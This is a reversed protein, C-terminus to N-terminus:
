EAGQSTFQALDFYDRWATIIGDHIEFIGMLPLSRTGEATTIHDVRETMVIPGDALLHTVDVRVDGGMCMFETLTDQIAERGVVPELPGNQYVTEDNFYSGLNSADGTPWAAIFAAMFAEIVEASSSM